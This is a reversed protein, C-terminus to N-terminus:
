NHIKDKFSLFGSYASFYVIYFNEAMVKIVADNIKSSTQANRWQNGLNKLYKTKIYDLGRTRYEESVLPDDKKLSFYSTTTSKVISIKRAFLKNLFVKYTLSNKAEYELYYLYLKANTTIYYEDAPLKASPVIIYFGAKKHHDLEELLTAKSPAKSFMTMMVAFVFIFPAM